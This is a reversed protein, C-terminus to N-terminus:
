GSPEAPSFAPVPQGGISAVFLAMWVGILPGMKMSINM